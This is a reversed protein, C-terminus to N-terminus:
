RLNKRVLQLITTFIIKLDHYNSKSKVYQLDLEMWKNFSLKHAGKIIWLSTMGPLVTFRKQYKAPIKQAENPPLPRPGVMAMDGKLVNILQPLEDIATKSLYKGISTFRPDNKIKFVPDDAENLHKYKGQIKEAGLNMTRIKYMTFTKKRLGVRKQKFLFPGSSTTKVALYLWPWFPISLFLIILAIFRSIM